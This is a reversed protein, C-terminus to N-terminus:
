QKLSCKGSHCEVHLMKEYVRKSDEKILHRNLDKAWKKVLSNMKNNNLKLPQKYVKSLLENDPIDKVFINKGLRHSIMENKQANPM